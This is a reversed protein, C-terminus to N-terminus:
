LFTVFVVPLLVPIGVREVDVVRHQLIVAGVDQHHLLHLGLSTSVQSDLLPVGLVPEHSWQLLLLQAVGVPRVGHRHLHTFWTNVELSYRPAKKQSETRFVREGPPQLIVGGDDPGLHVTDLFIFTFIEIRM